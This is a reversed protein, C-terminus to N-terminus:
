GALDSVSQKEDRAVDALEESEAAALTFSITTGKGPESAVQVAGGHREVIRRVITLGIGSGGGYKDRAHLRKFPRFITDRHDHRIGIGNDRVSFETAKAVPRWDIEVLKEPKDNYKMANTILNRFVEGVRTGDCTLTPLKKPVRVQLGSERLSIEMSELVDELVEQLNCPRIALRTRGLRSYHLLSEILEDMRQSLRALTNLKEKGGTDLLDSYDEILFHSYNHIGRLPERLDHSAIYAFEDLSRNSQELEENLVALAETKARLEIEVRKRDTIDWIIGLIGSVNGDSDRVPAKVIHITRKEGNRVETEDREDPTGAAMIRRDDERCSEAHSPPCFDFDTKGVIQNPRIGLERAHSENCAVYVSDTDKYFIRQPISQLLTRHKEESERLQREARKRQVITWIAEAVLSLQDIDTRDYNSPKNGVGIVAVIKEREFVPVALDRWIPVHGEPLGGRRRLAPYNNHVVPARRRISDAWIGAQELPYHTEMKPVECQRLTNRSWTHLHIHQQDPCVLHFYGINSQTLHVAEELGKRIVEEETAPDTTQLLRLSATLADTIRKRSTIDEFTCFVSHPQTEGERIRPIASLLIWRIGEKAPNHIGMVVGRVATGTRLAEMGPHTEPPFPRGDEHVPQWRPDASPRGRLQEMTLGLIRQAAQNAAFIRGEADQYIVGQAM